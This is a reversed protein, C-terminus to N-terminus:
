GLDYFYVWRGQKDWCGFTGYTKVTIKKGVMDNYWWEPNSCKIITREIIGRHRGGFQQAARAEEKSMSM